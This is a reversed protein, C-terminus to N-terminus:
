YRCKTDTYMLIQEMMFSLVIVETLVSFDGYTCNVFDSCYLRLRFIVHKQVSIIKLAGPGTLKKVRM